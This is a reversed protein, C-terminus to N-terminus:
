APLPGANIVLDCIWAYRHKEVIPDTKSLIEVLAPLSSQAFSRFPVSLLLAL